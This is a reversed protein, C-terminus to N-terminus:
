NMTLKKSLPGSQQFRNGLQHWIAADFTDSEIANEHQQHEWTNEICRRWLPRSPTAFCWGLSQKNLWKNLRLDFFVDFSRTVPRQAPFEGTVPSNRLCMALLASINGNSSTMMYIWSCRAARYASWTQRGTHRDTLWLKPAVDRPTKTRIGHLKWFVKLKHFAVFTERRLMKALNRDEPPRFPRLQYSDIDDSISIVWVHQIVM